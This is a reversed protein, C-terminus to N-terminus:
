LKKLIYINSKLNAKPLHNGYSKHLIIAQGSSLCQNVKEEYNPDSLTHDNFSFAFLGSPPLLSFLNDFVELPAAGTGIVGIATIIKYQDAHVPIKTSPDFVTLKKYISKKEALTIMEQSVDLGDINTFGVAQLAFGSLGTGCGYDLIVESQNTVSDKLAKAVREPTVYGNKQVENDYTSAWSAYLERSDNTGGDYVDNLYSKAM